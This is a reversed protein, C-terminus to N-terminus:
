TAGAAEVPSPTIRRATYRIRRPSAATASALPWGSCCSRIRPHPNQTAGAAPSTAITLDAADPRHRNSPTIVQPLM